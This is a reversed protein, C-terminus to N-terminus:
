NMKCQYGGLRSKMYAKMNFEKDVIVCYKHDINKSIENFVDLVIKWFYLLFIELFLVVIGAILTYYWLKPGPKVYIMLCIILSFLILLFLMQNILYPIMFKPMQRFIGFLLLICNIAYVISWISTGIAFWWFYTNIKEGKSTNLGFMTLNSKESIQKLFKSTNEKFDQSFNEIIEFDLLYPILFILNLISMFIGFIGFTTTAIYKCNMSNM